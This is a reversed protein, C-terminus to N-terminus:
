CRLSNPSTRQMGPMSTTHALSGEADGPTLAHGTRLRVTARQLELTSGARNLASNVSATTSELTEAVAESRFGVVDRLILVARQRPSLLQLAALFAFQVSERIDYALSPSIRM